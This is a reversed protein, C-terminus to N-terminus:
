AADRIEIVDADIVGDDDEADHDRHREDGGTLLRRHPNASGADRPDVREELPRAIDYKGASEPILNAGDESQLADLYRACL